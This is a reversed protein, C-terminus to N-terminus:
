LRKFAALFRWACKEWTYRSVDSKSLRIREALEKKELELIRRLAQLLSSTSAANYFIPARGALEAIAGSNPAAVTVGAMLAELVRLASGDHLGPYLFLAANQYLGSLHNDPMEEIRVFRAGWDHPEPTGSKGTVVFTHPYDKGLHNLAGRVEEIRPACLADTFVVLYPQEVMTGHTGGFVPNIGPHAVMVRDLPVDFIELCRRRLYESPVIVARAQNCAKRIGKIAARSVAEGGAEFQALDLAYLVQPISVSAAADLPSLLVDAKAAKVAREVSAGGRFPGIPTAATDICERDFEGFEAHNDEHTLVLLSTEPQIKRLTRCVFRLYRDEHYTAGRTKSPVTNVAVLM